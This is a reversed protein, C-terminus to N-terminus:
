FNCGISVTAVNRVTGGLYQPESLLSVFRDSIKIYPALSKSRLWNWAFSVQAGARQLTEYEFQPYLWNDFSKYKATGSAYSGDTFPNGGGTFYILDAAITFCDSPRCINHEASLDATINMFSSKRYNPYKTTTQNRSFADASLGFVWKPRFLSVEKQLYWAVHAAIDVRSQTKNQGHYEIVTSMGEVPKYSYSNTLNSLHNMGASMELRHVDNGAPVTLVGELKAEPGSFECFVVSSSTRNGYYGSRWIGTLQGFFRTSTGVATQLAVGYRDNIMPRTNQTSVYGEDGSFVERDGWFGGQDVLTYYDRDITGYTGASLQEVSHRYILNAGFYNDGVSTFMVGPAISLDMLVDLFRPDKLKTQDTATYDVDLGASFSKNLSYSIGGRLNYQERVKVGLTAADEELFNIANEKPNMLIQGGMKQGRFYSYSLSGSFALYDSVRNFARAGVSTQWSDPSDQIAIMDGNEKDFSLIAEAFSLDDLSALGAANSFTLLPNAATTYHFDQM